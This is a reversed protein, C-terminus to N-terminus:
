ALRPCLTTPDGNPGFDHTGAEFLKKGDADLVLLGADKIVIGDAKIALVFPAGAVGFTGTEFEQFGNGISRSSISQGTVSNSWTHILNWHVQMSEPEGGQNYFTTIIIDGV